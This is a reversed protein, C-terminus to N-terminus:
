APFNVMRRKEDHGAALETSVTPLSSSLVAPAHGPSSLLM